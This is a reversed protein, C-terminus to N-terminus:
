SMAGEQALIQLQVDGALIADRLIPYVREYAHRSSVVEFHGSGNGPPDLFTDGCLSCGNTDAITNGVHFEIESRGPVDCIEIMGKHWGVGFGEARAYHQRYDDNKKGTARLHLPYTGARIIPHPVRKLGPELCFCLPEGSPSSWRAITSMPDSAIRTATFLQM